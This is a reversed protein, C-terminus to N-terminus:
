RRQYGITPESNGRLSINEAQLRITFRSLLNVSM